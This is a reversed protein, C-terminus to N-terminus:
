FLEDIMGLRGRFFLKSFGKGRPTACLLVGHYVSSGHTSITCFSPLWDMEPINRFVAFENVIYQALVPPKSM